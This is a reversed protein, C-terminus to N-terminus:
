DVGKILVTITKEGNIEEYVYKTDRALLFEAEGRIKSNDGIFSGNTGKPLNFKVINTGKGSNDKSFNEAIKKDLSTSKFESFTNNRKLYEIEGESVGRYSSIDEKLSFKSLASDLKAINDEISEKTKPHSYMKNNPNNLYNNVVSHGTDTFYQISEVEKAELKNYWLKAKEQYQFLDEKDLEKYPTVPALEKQKVKLLKVEEYLKDYLDGAEEETLSGYNEDELDFMKEDIKNIKRTIEEYTEESESKEIESLREELAERDMYASTSCKCFPHRPIAPATDGMDKVNFVKGDLPLCVDCASPEAIWTYKDFNGDEFSKKAAEGQIRSTETIAIRDAAYKKLEFEKEVLKQLQSGTKRPNEGRLISRRLANELGEQLEKQNQWINDSFTVNRFEAEVFSTAIRKLEVSNPTSLGLIGAQREYEAIFSKALHEQLMHEEANALEVTNLNMKAQLLELRNTRMTVNYERLEKNAKESFDKEDVYKKARESFNEVDMKSIRKKAESMSISEKNAFREIDKAIDKEIEEQALNYLKALKKKYLNDAKMNEQINDLEEKRLKWYEKNTKGEGSVVM